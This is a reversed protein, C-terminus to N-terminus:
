VIFLILLACILLNSKSLGSTTFPESILNVESEPIGFIEYNIKMKYEETDKLKFKRPLIVKLPGLSVQLQGEAIEPNNLVYGYTVTVNRSQPAPQKSKLMLRLKQIELDLAQKRKVYLMSDSKKNISSYFESVTQCTASQKQLKTFLDRYIQTDTPKLKPSTAKSAPKSIEELTSSAEIKSDNKMLNELEILEKLKVKAGEVDGDRKFRLIDRKLESVDLSSDMKNDTDKSVELDNKPESLAVLEALLEPNNEDEPTLVMNEVNYDSIDEPGTRIMSFNASPRCDNSKDNLSPSLAEM